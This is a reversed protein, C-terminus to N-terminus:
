DACDYPPLSVQLALSAGTWALAAQPCVQVASSIMGKAALVVQMANGIGKKVKAERETKKLGARILQSMQSQRLELDERM